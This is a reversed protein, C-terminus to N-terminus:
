RKTMLHKMSECHDKLFKDQLPRIFPVMLSGLLGCGRSYSIVEFYVEGGCREHGISKVPVPPEIYVRFAEEGSILHGDLTSYVVESYLGINRCRYCSKDVEHGYIIEMLSDSAPKMAKYSKDRVVSLIRCPNLSWICTNYFRSLTAVTMNATVSGDSPAIMKVWKLRNTASFSLVLATAHLFDERGHGVVVRRQKVAYSEPPARNTELHNCLCGFDDYNFTAREFRRM